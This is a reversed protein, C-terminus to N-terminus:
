VHARGIEKSGDDVLIIEYAYDLPKLACEVEIVTNEIIDEENYVPIIISLDINNMNM